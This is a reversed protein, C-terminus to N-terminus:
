VDTGGDWDNIQEGIGIAIWDAVLNSGSVGNVTFQNTEKEISGWGSDQGSLTVIYQNNLFRVGCLYEVNCM